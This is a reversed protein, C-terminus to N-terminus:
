ILGLRLFWSPHGHPCRGDHEVICGDTAECLTDLFWEELMEVDPEDVTPEPWPSNNLVGHLDTIAAALAAQAQPSASDVDLLRRVQQLQLLVGSLQAMTTVSRAMM